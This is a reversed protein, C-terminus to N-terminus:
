SRPAGHELEKMAASFSESHLRGEEWGAARAQEIGQLIFRDPGCFYLHSLRPVRRLAKEFDLRIGSGGHGFYCEVKHARGVQKLAELFAACKASRAAYHLEFSSGQRDLQLAMSMLPAIGIGGAFLVSHVSGGALPFDNWPGEARLVQGEHMKQYIWASGGLSQPERYVALTYRDRRNSASAISYSRAVGIPLILDISAGASFQPLEVAGVPALDVGIIGEAELWRRDVRVDFSSISTM